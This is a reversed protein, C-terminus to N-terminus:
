SREMVFEYAGLKGNQWQVEKDSCNVFVCVGNSFVTKSVGNELVEYREITANKVADYIKGYEAVSKKILSKKDTYKAAYLKAINDEMFSTDFDSIVTYGLGIGARAALAIHRAANQSLNVATSYMPVEGHFVMEYFPIELYLQYRGTPLLPADFVTDTIGALAAATKTCAVLKGSEKLKNIYGASDVFMNKTTAYSDPDTYDSYVTQGISTFCIASLGNTDSMQLLKQVASDLKARSLLRYTTKSNFDSLPVNVLAREAAHMVATQAADNLYSFGNGSKSYKVLEFQTFAKINKSKCFDFLENRDADSGFIGAFKYGGAIKGTNIGSEGYGSLRVVPAVGTEKYIDSVIEKAKKFDTMSKLTQKPFGLITSSTMVGGLVTISYAGYGDTKDKSKNESLLKNDILYKRYRKAMGNYDAESGSLMYYGISVKVKSLASVQRLSQKGTASKFNDTDRVYITPFVYSYDDKKDGASLSVGVTGENEEVIGLLAEDGGTKIGFVRMIAEENANAASEVSLSAANSSYGTISRTKDADVKTKILAGSGIPAFIYADDAKNSVSCLYKAPEVAYLSYGELSETVLSTDVTILLSDKRLTYEVPVSIKPEDFYYKLRIGNKTKEASIKDNEACISSDFTEEELTTSNFARINLSPYYLAVDLADTPATAWIQNDAKREFSICKNECDWNLSYDNNQCLTQTDVTEIKAKGNYKKAFFSNKQGKCGVLSSVVLLVALFASVYRIRRM